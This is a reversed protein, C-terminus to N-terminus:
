KQVINSPQAGPDLQPHHFRLPFPFPLGAALAKGSVVLWYLIRNPPM